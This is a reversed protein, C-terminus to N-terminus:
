RRDQRYRWAHYEAEIQSDRMQRLRANDAEQNISHILSLSLAGIVLYAGLGVSVAFCFSGIVLVLLPEWVCKARYEDGSFISEGSYRSHVVLGRRRRYWGRASHGALLVLTLILFGWLLAATVGTPDPFFAPFAGLICMGVLPHIGTLYRDGWTGAKRTWAELPVAWCQAIFQILNLSKRFDDLPGGDAGKRPDHGAM